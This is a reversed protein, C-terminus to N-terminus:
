GSRRAFLESAQRALADWDFREVVWRRAAEGMARRREPTVLLDGVLAALQEPEECPVTVGSAATMTESTGGSTGAVVPKGCAQAELLVMGFGEIDGEIERNPLVFLDCQQYCHVLEDDSIEGLLQVHNELGLDRVLRVLPERQEGDGVVAYLVEPCRQRVISLGRLMVDHGKRRQLRGVTLVVTRDQWGLTTRVGPDLPAPAFRRTDVGPHLLAVRQEALGWREVLITRTNESNAVVFSAGRLVRGVMLGLERSGYIRLDRRAPRRTRNSPNVEEGHAFCAYRTSRRRSAALALLGEPVCRGAHIWDVHESRVLRRITAYARWYAPLSTRRLFRTPFTLPLRLVRAQHARDFVDAGPSEGVALLYDEAPLRRYIEWLWRGSGGVRPPFIESVLLTTM